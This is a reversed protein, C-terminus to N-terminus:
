ASGKLPLQYAVAPTDIPDPGDQTDPGPDDPARPPVFMRPPKVAPKEAAPKRPAVGAEFQKGEGKQPASHSATRAAPSAAEAVPKAPAAAPPAQQPDKTKEPRDVPLEPAPPSAAVPAPAAAESKGAVERPEGKTEPAPIAPEQRAGLEVLEELKRGILEADPKELAEVPVRWQFADLAGTVPSVPAWEDAVVGDATWAPDRPANVARALWERVRGADGHQKGEIQAMLTCVRQTLRNELLPELARRATEWERADIAATAVAISSEISMPRLAALQQVRALRDHPSDGIRAYAYATALDPHPSRKWTRQIVRTARPTNGKAALLRGAIAAAPVLDVALGHAELALGLAREPDSDECAQAQATLLVARRRNAAPREVHHYRTAISLTELAGAWDGAKCQIDFLAEVPWALKPNLALAREAFQRAAERDGEKEAELFLGRLGLQETDPSALMAEFIRRATTRDGSLQAAQARLLHTLPENPLAKRAQLAYKTALMRDGAGIAIMGSSLAELGRKQRRRNFFSGIAAPSYWIQRLAWWLFICLGILAALTIAAGLLSTEISYGQWEIVVSGPRDALWAIGFALASVALLYLVLRLM